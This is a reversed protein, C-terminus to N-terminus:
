TIRCVSKVLCSTFDCVTVLMSVDNQRVVYPCLTYFSIINGTIDCCLIKIVMEERTHKKLEIIKKKWFVLFFDNKDAINIYFVNRDRNLTQRCYNWVIHIFIHVLYHTFFFFFYRFFFKKRESHQLQLTKPFCLCSLFFINQVYTINSILNLSIFM